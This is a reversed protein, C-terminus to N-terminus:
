TVQFVFAANVGAAGLKTKIRWGAGSPIIRARDIEVDEIITLGNPQMSIVPFPNGALFQIQTDGTGYAMVLGGLSTFTAVTLAPNVCVLQTIKPAGSFFEVQIKLLPSMRALAVVQKAAQNFMGASPHLAVNPPNIPDDQFAGGGLEEIAPRHSLSQEYTSVSSLITSM